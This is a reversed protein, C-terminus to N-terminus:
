GSRQWLRIRVWCGAGRAPDGARSNAGLSDRRAGHRLKGMGLTFAKLAAPFGLTSVKAKRQKGNRALWKQGTCLWVLPRRCGRPCRATIEAKQGLASFKGTRMGLSAKFPIGLGSPDEQAWEGGQRGSGVPFKSTEVTSGHRSPEPRTGCGSLGGWWLCSHESYSAGDQEDRRALGGM